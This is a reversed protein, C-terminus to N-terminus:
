QETAWWGGDKDINNRINASTMSGVAPDNTCGYWGNGFITTRVMAANNILMPDPCDFFENLKISADVSEDGDIGVNVLRFTNRVIVPQHNSGSVTRLWLGINCQIVKNNTFESGITDRFVCAHAKFGRFTNGDVIIYDNNNDGEIHVGYGSESAGYDAFMDNNRITVNKALYIWIAADGDWDPGIINDEVVHNVGRNLRIAATDSSPYCRRITNAIIHVTETLDHIAAIGVKAGEVTCGIITNYKGREAGSSGQSTIGWGTNTGGPGEKGEMTDVHSNSITTQWGFTTIGHDSSNFVYCRDVMSNQGNVNIGDFACHFAKVDVITARASQLTGVRVGYARSNWITVRIVFVDGCSDLLVGCPDLGGEAIGLTPNGAKNMDLFLDRIVIGEKQNAYFIHNNVGDALVLRTVQGQGWITVNDLLTIADTIDYTGNEIHIYKWGDNVAKQIQVDDATVDCYYYNTLGSKSADQGVYAGAGGVVTGVGGGGSFAITIDIEDNVADDTITLSVNATEGFNLRPRTGIDAGSNKRVTTHNGTDESDLLYQPHDDDSLGDLSGHDLGLADHNAKTHESDLLYQTHDDDELGTLEGHDTVGGGGSISEIWASYNMDNWFYDPANIGTSFNGWDFNSIGEGPTPDITPNSGNSYVWIIFSSLFLVSILVFTFIKRSGKM